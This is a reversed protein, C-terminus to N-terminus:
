LNFVDDNKVLQSNQAISTNSALNGRTKSTSSPANNSNTLAVAEKKNNIAKKWMTKVYLSTNNADPIVEVVYTQNNPYDKIYRITKGQKNDTGQVIRDYTNLIEPIREIDKNTIAIQEKQKELVPNGHEKIMHRIDNDALLHTRGSIDVGLLSKVKKAVKDSVKGLFTNKRSNKSILANQIRKHLEKKINEQQLANNKKNQMSQKNIATNNKVSKTNQPISNNISPTEEFLVKSLKQQPTAHLLEKNKIDNIEQIEKIDHYYFKPNSSKDTVIEKITIMSIRNENNIKVPSYFYHYVFNNDDLDISSNLYVSERIINPLVPATQLTEIPQKINFTKKLGKQSLDINIDTDRITVTKNKYNNLAFDGAMQRLEKKNKYDKFYNNDIITFKISSSKGSLTSM